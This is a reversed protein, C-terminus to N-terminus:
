LFYRSNNKFLKHSVLMVIYMKQYIMDSFQWGLSFFTFYFCVQVRFKYDVGIKGIIKKVKVTTIDSHWIIRWPESLAIRVLDLDQVEDLATFAEAGGSGKGKAGGAFPMNDIAEVPTLTGNHASDRPHTASRNSASAISLKPKRSKSSSAASCFSTTM